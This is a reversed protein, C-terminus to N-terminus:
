LVRVQGGDRGDQRNHGNENPFRDWGCKNKKEKKSIRRIDHHPIKVNKERRRRRRWV